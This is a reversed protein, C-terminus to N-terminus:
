QRRREDVRREAGGALRLLGRLQEAGRGPRGVVQGAFYHRARNAVVALFQAEADGVAFAAARAERHGVAAGDGVREAAAALDDEGPFDLVACEDTFAVRKHGLARRLEGGRIVALRPLARRASANRAISKATTAASTPRLPSSRQTSAERRATYPAQPRSVRQTTRISIAKAPSSKEKLM